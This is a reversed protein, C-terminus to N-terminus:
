GFAAGDVPGAVAQYAGEMKARRALEWWTEGEKGGPELLRAGGRGDVVGEGMLGSHPADQAVLLPKCGVGKPGVIGCSGPTVDYNRADRSGWVAVGAEVVLTM